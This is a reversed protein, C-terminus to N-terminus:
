SWKSGSSQNKWTALILYEPIFEASRQDRNEANGSLSADSLIDKKKLEPPQFGDEGRKPQFARVFTRFCLVDSCRTLGRQPGSRKGNASKNKFNPEPPGIINAVVSAIPIKPTVGSIAASM